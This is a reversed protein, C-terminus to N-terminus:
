SVSGRPFSLHRRSQKIKLSFEIPLSGERSVTKGQAGSYFSSTEVPTDKRGWPDYGM